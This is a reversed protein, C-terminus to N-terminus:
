NSRLAAALGPIFDTKNDWYNHAQLGGGSSNLVNDVQHDTIAVPTPEADEPPWSVFHSVKKPDFPQGETWGVPHDLPDAVPDRADFYNHWEVARASGIEHGWSFLEAYKQLPSGATIFTRVKAAAALPLDRLADYGIVTGNSHTNLVIASVDDRAALRLLAERVFGRIRERLDNRCVYGCVDDEIQRFTGFIGAPENADEKRPWIRRVHRSASVDTRPQLGHGDKGAQAPPHIATAVDVIASHLIGLISSYHHHEVLGRFFTEATAEPQPGIDELEAYVLAVHAVSKANKTLLAGSWDISTKSRDRWIGLRELGQNRTGGEAPYRSQVYVPLSPGTQWPQRDPDDSLEPLPGSLAAHLHDAYGPVGPRPPEQFGIGHITVLCTAPTAM